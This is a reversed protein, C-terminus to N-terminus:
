SPDYDALQKAWRQKLEERRGPYSEAEFFPLDDLPVGMRALAFRWQDSDKSNWAIPSRPQMLLRIIKPAASNAVPGLRILGKRIGEVVYKQKPEKSDQVAVDLAGILGKLAREGGVDAMREVFLGADERLQKDNWIARFAPDADAFTGAPMAALTRLLHLRYKPDTQPMAIRKAVPVTMVRPMPQRFGFLSVITNPLDQVRPDAVIRALVAADKDSMTDNQTDIWEHALAVQAANADPDDLMAVVASRLDSVLPADDGPTDDSTRSEALGFADILLQRSRRAVALEGFRLTERVPRFGRGAFGSGASGSVFELWFIRAPRWAEVLLKRYQVGDDPGTVVLGDVKAGNGEASRSIGNEITWDFSAPASGKVLREERALRMASYAAMEREMALRDELDRTPRGSGYYPFDRAIQGPNKPSLGPPDDPSAAILRYTAEGGASRYTLSEVGPLDLLALCYSDCAVEDRPMGGSEVWLVDGVLPVPVQPIVDPATAADFRATAALREPLDVLWGPALAIAFATITALTDNHIPLFYRIVLTALCYVFVTPMLPLILGPLLLAMFGVIVLDPILWVVGALIGSAITAAKLM